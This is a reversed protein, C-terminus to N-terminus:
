LADYDMKEMMGMQYPEGIRTEGTCYACAATPMTFRLKADSLSAVDKANAVSKALLFAGQGTIGNVFFIQAAPNSQRVNWAFVEREAQSVVDGKTIVVADAFKLMPGIKKPTRVGSLCDVVCIGMIGVIHPSCRNCLGASETVLCDLGLRLGWDVAGDVNNVYFHDPCFRGSLGVRVAIGASAYAEEDFSTLCDFKVAGLRGDLNEALRLIV